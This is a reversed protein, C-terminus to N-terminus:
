EVKWLILRLMPRNDMVPKLKFIIFLCLQESSEELENLKLNNLDEKISELDTLFGKLRYITKIPSMALAHFAKNTKFLSKKAEKSM